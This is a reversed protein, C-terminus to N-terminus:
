ALGGFQGIRIFENFLHRLAIVRDEAFAAHSKGAPLALTDRDRAGHDAISWIRIRSSGGGAEVGSGFFQDEFREIPQHFSFVAM